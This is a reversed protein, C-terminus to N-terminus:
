SDCRAPGTVKAKIVPHRRGLAFGGFGSLFDLYRDRRDDILYAGDARVYQRDFGLATLVKVLQPNMFQSHLEFSEGQHAALLAALDFPV